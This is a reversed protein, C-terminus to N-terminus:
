CAEACCARFRGAEFEWVQFRRGASGRIQKTWRGNSAKEILGEQALADRLSNKTFPMREGVARHHSSLTELLIDPYIQVVNEENKAVGVVKGRDSLAEHLGPISITGTALKQGLIRFMISVPSESQMESVQMRLHNRAIQEYEAAMTSLKMKDVVELCELYDLFLAFGLWNLALNSAIRLGNSLLLTDALLLQIKQNVFERINSKWDEDLIAMQLLGPLFMPYLSRNQWCRDGAQLNKEPEVPLLITRGTVSEIDAVFDEGTSLLLGRIHRPELIKSNSKLRGRGHGDAHNQLIRIVTRPDTVSSKYDDVLFLADRFHSGEAEIANATSSWSVIRDDFQGYFNMALIGLFTKGGGSPGQLHLAAKGKAFLDKIISSFSALVIHGMLPYMVEHSKLDLFDNLIHKGLLPLISDDPHSFGLRRSFNGESLDVKVDPNAIIAGPTILMDRSLFNGEATFGISTTVSTEPIHDGSLEQASIRLDRASGYLIARPGAVELVKSKLRGSEFDDTSLTFQHSEGGRHLTLDLLRGRNKGEDTKLKQSSIILHFNAILAKKGAWLKFLRGNEVTYSSIGSNAEEIDDDDNDDGTDNEGCDQPLEQHGNEEKRECRREEPGEGKSDVPDVIGKDSDVTDAGDATNRPLILNKLIFQEEEDHAM